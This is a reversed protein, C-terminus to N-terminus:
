CFYKPNLAKEDSLPDYGEAREFITRVTELMGKASCLQTPAKGIYGDSICGRYRFALEYKPFRVSVDTTAESHYMYFERTVIEGTNRKVTVSIPKKEMRDPLNLIEGVGHLFTNKEQGVGVLLVYGNHKALKGYCSEPASPSTVYADDAIFSEAKKRNGFVMLSLVPNESRVGDDRELALKSIVGLNNNAQRKTLDLTIADKKCLNGGTHTPLLFLGGDETFYEILADLLAEAGGEYEGILKMSSHMLVVSDKPAGMARLQCFLEDKNLM